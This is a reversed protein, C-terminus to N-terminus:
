EGAATELAGLRKRVSEMIHSLQKEQAKLVTIEEERSLRDPPTGSFRM